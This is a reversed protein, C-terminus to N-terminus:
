LIKSEVYLAVLKRTDSVSAKKIMNKRHKSVTQSSIFLQQGIEESTCGHVLLELIEKERPTYSIANVKLFGKNVDQGPCKLKFRIHDHSVRGTIDTILHFIACPRGENNFRHVFSNRTVTRLGKEAFYMRFTANLSVDKCCEEDMEKMKELLIGEVRLLPSLDEDFVKKYFFDIHDLPKGNLLAKGKILHLEGSNLCQIMEIDFPLKRFLELETASIDPPTPQPSKYSHLIDNLRNRELRLQKLETM